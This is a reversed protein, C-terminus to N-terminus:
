IETVSSDVNMASSCGNPYHYPHKSTVATPVPKVAPTSGTWLCWLAEMFSVNTNWSAAFSM